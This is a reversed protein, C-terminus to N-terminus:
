ARGEDIAERIEEETLFRTVGERLRDVERAAQRNIARRHAMREEKTEAPQLAAHLEAIVEQNVSRRNRKAREKLAAHLDDPLNRITVTAM